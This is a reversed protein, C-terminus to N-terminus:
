SGGIALCVVGLVGGFITKKLREWLPTPPTFHVSGRSNATWSKFLSTETNPQSTARRVGQSNGLDCCAEKCSVSSTHVMHSTQGSQALCAGLDGVLAPSRWHVQRSRLRRQVEDMMALGRKGDSASM